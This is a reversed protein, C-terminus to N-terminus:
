YRIRYFAFKIVESGFHRWGAKYRWWDNLNYSLPRVAQVVVRIGMPALKRNFIWRVRRTPFAEIPIVIIKAGSSKAWKLVGEAEGYTNHPYFSFNIIATPSVGSKELVSRNQAAHQGHDFRSVGVAISPSVGRKFLEAAAAPRIDLGGGLVVIADAREFRDSVVWSKALSGLLYPMACLACAISVTFIAVLLM